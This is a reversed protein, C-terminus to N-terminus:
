AVAYCKIEILFRSMKTDFHEVVRINATVRHLHSQWPTLGGAGQLLPLPEGLVQIQVRLGPGPLTLILIVIPKDLGLWPCLSLVNSDQDEKNEDDAQHNDDDGGGEGGGSTPPVSIVWGNSITKGTAKCEMISNKHEVLM